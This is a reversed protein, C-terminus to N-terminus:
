SVFLCVFCISYIDTGGPMNEFQIDPKENCIFHQEPYSYM